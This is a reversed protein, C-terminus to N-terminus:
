GPNCGRSFGAEVLEDGPVLGGVPDALGGRQLFLGRTGRPFQHRNHDIGIVCIHHGPFGDPQVALDDAPARAAAVAEPGAQRDSLAKDRSVPRLVPKLKLHFDKALARLARTWMAGIQSSPPRIRAQDSYSVPPLCGGTECPMLPAHHWMQQNKRRSSRGPHAPRVLKQQRDCPCRKQGLDDSLRKGGPQRHSHHKGRITGQTLRGKCTQRNM